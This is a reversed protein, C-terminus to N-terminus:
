KGHKETYGYGVSNLRDIAEKRAKIALEFALEKGYKIISFYKSKKVMIGEELENWSAIYTSYGSSSTVFRVGTVGTKNTSCKTRNRAQQAYTAWRINGKIYGLSNDIRDVTYIQNYDPMYGIENIFEEFSEKFSEDMLIGVAGYKCYSKSKQNYCRTKIEAWSRYEKTFYKGHTKFRETRLCGCSKVYCRVLSTHYVIKKNGCTCICEWIARFSKVGYGLFKVATLMGFIGGTLDKTTPKLCRGDADENFEAKKASENRFEQNEIM